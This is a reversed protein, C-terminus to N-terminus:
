YKKISGYHEIELRGVMYKDIEPFYLSVVSSVKTGMEGEPNNEYIIWKGCNFPYIEQIYKSIDCEIDKVTFDPEPYVRRFTIKKRGFIKRFYDFNDGLARKFPIFKGADVCFDNNCSIEDLSLVKALMITAERESIDNELNKNNEVTIRFYLVVVLMIIVIVVFLVLMTESIHIQSKKFKM